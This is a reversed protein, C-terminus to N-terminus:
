GTPLGEFDGVNKLAMAIGIGCAVAQRELMELRHMMDATAPGGHHATVPVLAILAPEFAIGVVAAAVPVTGFATRQGFFAPEIGV